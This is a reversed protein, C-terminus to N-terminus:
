ASKRKRVIVTKEVPDCFAGPYEGVVGDDKTNICIVGIVRKFAIDPPEGIDGPHESLIPDDYYEELEKAEEVEPELRGVAEEYTMMKM